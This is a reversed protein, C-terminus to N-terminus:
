PAYESQSVLNHVKQRINAVKHVEDEDDDIRVDVVFM